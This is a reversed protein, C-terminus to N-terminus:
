RGSRCLRDQVLDCPYIRVAQRRQAGHLAPRGAHVGGGARHRSKRLPWRNHEEPDKRDPFGAAAFRLIERGGRGRRRVVPLSLNKVDPLEETRELRGYSSCPPAIGVGSKTDKKWDNRPARLRSGPIELNRTRTNWAGRFSM